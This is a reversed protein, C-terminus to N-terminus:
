RCSSASFERRAPHVAAGDGAARHRRRPRLGRRPATPADACIAHRAHPRRRFRDRRGLACTRDAQRPTALERRTSFTTAGLADPLRAAGAAPRPRWRTASSALLAIAVSGVGGAAGTVLVEGSGPMLGHRELAMVGADRHLRRHRDGDGAPRSAPPCSCWGSATCGRRRRRLRGLAARRRALRDARGRGRSAFGPHRSARSWAPSISARCM